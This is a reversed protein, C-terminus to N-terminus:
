TAQHANQGQHKMTDYFSVDLDRGISKKKGEEPGQGQSDTNGGSGSMCEDRGFSKM